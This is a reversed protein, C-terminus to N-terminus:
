NTTLSSVTFSGTTAPKSTDYFNYTGPESLTITKNQGSRITYETVGAYTTSDPYVGFTIKKTDSDKNMFSLTDCQKAEVLAPNATAGQLVVRHNTHRGECAGTKEGNVQYIGEDNALKKVQDSPMMNHHLNSTIIISGGVVVLITGITFVFFIIQWAPRPKRGLHLFFLVQVLMQLVGFAMITMLLTTGTIVHNVVLYYPIFTFVLSLIFGIVYAQLTGHEEQENLRESM